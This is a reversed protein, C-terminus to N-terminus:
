DFDVVVEQKMSADDFEDKVSSERKPKGNVMFNSGSLTKKDKTKKELAKSVVKQRDSVANFLQVVGQTAIRKLLREKEKDKIIDPKKMGWIDRERKESLKVMTERHTLKKLKKKRQLNKKPRPADEFTVTEEPATSVIQNSPSAEEDDKELLSEPESEDSGEYIEIKDPM